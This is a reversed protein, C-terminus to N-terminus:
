LWTPSQRREDLRPGARLKADIFHAILEAARNNRGNIFTEFAEKLSHGFQENAHFAEALVRDLREKFELLEQVLARERDPDAVMETGIRKIYAAFASRLKPM